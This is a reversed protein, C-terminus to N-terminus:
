SKLLKIAEDIKDNALLDFLRRADIGKFSTKDLNKELLEIGLETVSLKKEQLQRLELIRQTFDKSSFDKDISIIAKEKFENVLDALSVDSSHFGEALSGTLKIRILPKLAQKNEKLCSEIFSNTEALVQKPSANKLDIKKYFLTRQLPLEILQLANTKSDFLYFGKKQESELKKMQTIVTSGPLVLMRENDLKMEKHWHLHGNVILQFGKPLDDLSISAIAEDNFPLFEKLSQHIVLINELNKEPVPNWYNLVDKAKREPVGGLGFVILEESNIKIRAKMAHLYILNNSAKLIELANKLDKGRFEHTGHIALLPVENLSFENLKKGQRDFVEIVAKTSKKRLPKTKEFLVFADHWTEPSPITEDFLDGSLIILEANNELALEFAQLAQNFSDERREGKGFGLHLDSIFAIKM